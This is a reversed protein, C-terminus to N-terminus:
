NSLEILDTLMELRFDSENFKISSDESNQFYNNSSHILQFKTANKQIM